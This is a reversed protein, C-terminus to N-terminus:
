RGYLQIIHCLPELDCEVYSFLMNFFDERVCSFLTVFCDVTVKWVVSYHSLSTGIDDEMYVFLTVIFNGTM